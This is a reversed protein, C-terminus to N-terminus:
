NVHTGGVIIIACRLLYRFDYKELLFDGMLSDVHIELIKDELFKELNLHGKPIKNKEQKSKSKMMKMPVNSYSSEAKITMIVQEPVHKCTLFYEEDNLIM